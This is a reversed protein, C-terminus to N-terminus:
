IPGQNSMENVLKELSCAMEQFESGIDDMSSEVSMLDDSEEEFDAIHESSQRTQALEQREYGARQYDDFRLEVVQNM